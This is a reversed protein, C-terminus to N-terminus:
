RAFRGLLRQFLQKFLLLEDASFTRFLFIFVTYAGAAAPLSIWLGQDAFAVAVVGALLVGVLPKGAARSINITGVRKRVFRADMIVLFASAFVVAAAVGPMGLVMGLAITLAVSALLGLTSRWVMARENGSAIMKQKMVSDVALFVQSWVVLQLALVSGEYGPGFLLPIIREAAVTIVLAFPFILVLLIKLVKHAMIASKEPDNSYSRAFVPLLTMMMMPIITSTAQTIQLAANFQGVAELTVLLPLIIINLRQLGETLLRQLAFPVAVVLTSRCQSSNPRWVRQVGTEKAYRLITRSLILLSVTHYITRGLFASWVGAGSELLIWLSLLGLTFGISTAMTQYQMREVGQLVAQALFNLGAIPLTAAVIYMALEADARPAAAHLYVVLGVGFLVATLVTSASANIWHVLVQSRDRAIARIIVEQQGLPSLIELLLAVAMVVAFVGLSSAGLYRAVLITAVLGGGKAVLSAAFMAISNKLIRATGDISKTEDPM